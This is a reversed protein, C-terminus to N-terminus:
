SPRPGPGPQRAALVAGRPRRRLTRRYARHGGCLDAHRGGGGRHDRALVVRIRLTRTRATAPCSTKCTLASATSAVQGDLRLSRTLGVLQRKLPGDGFIDLSVNRDAQKAGAGIRLMYRHNEVPELHRVTELDTLPTRDPPAVFNDIVAYPVAAADPLRSLLANRAWASVFAMRDVQPIVDRELARIGRYVSGDREIQHMDAWEDAQSTRLHVAGASRSCLGLPLRFGFVPVALMRSWSFLTIIAAPSGCEALYRRLQRAHTHVGTRGEERLMAAIVLPVSKADLSASNM